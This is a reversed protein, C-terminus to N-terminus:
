FPVGYNDKIPVKEELCVEALSVSLVFGKVFYGSSGLQM